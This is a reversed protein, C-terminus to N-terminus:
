HCLMCAGSQPLKLSPFLLLSTHLFHSHTVPTVSYALAFPSFPLPFVYNLVSFACLSRPFYETLLAPQRRSSTHTITIKLNAHDVSFPSAPSHSPSHSSHPSSSFQSSPLHFLLLRIYTSSTVGLLCRPRPASKSTKIKINTLTSTSKYIDLTVTKIFSNTIIDTTRLM